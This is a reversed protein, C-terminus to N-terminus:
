LNFTIYYNAFFNWFTTIGIAFIKALYFNMRKELFYLITNNLLLGLISILFFSSFEIAIKSNHSEFTWIRNLLYNSSAAIVFGVSNALFRNTKFKEKLIYTLSFDIILGSFGVLGFKFFKILINM